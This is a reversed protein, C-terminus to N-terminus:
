YRPISGLYEAGMPFNATANSNSTITADIALCIIDTYWNNGRTDGSHDAQMVYYLGDTNIKNLLETNANAVQQNRALNFRYRQISSNNLRIAQGIKLSPNLLTKIKIGNQAQEPLGVMGTDSNIEPVEGPIYATLPVFNVKGDQISWTCDNDEALVRLADRTAGYIVKGRPLPNGQIRPIHGAEVGHIAMDKLLVSLQDGPATQGAALSLSTLSHNYARDGDAAMIDLYTDAQSERGRRVQIIQGDFIVGCNGDYGAQIVVRTFEPTPALQMVRNSTEESVNYVRIDASNPTQRDGRRIAFSFRLDSLDLADGSSDGVILSAQRKYQEITM